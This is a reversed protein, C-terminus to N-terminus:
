VKATEEYVADAIDSAAALVGDRVEDRTLAINQGNERM